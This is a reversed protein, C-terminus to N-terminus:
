KYNFYCLVKDQLTQIDSPDGFKVGINSAQENSKFVDPTTQEKKFLNQEMNMIDQNLIGDNVELGMLDVEMNQNTQTVGKAGSQMNDGTLDFLDNQPSQKFNSTINQTKKQQSSNMAFDFDDFVQNSQRIANSQNPQNALSSRVNSADDPMESFTIINKNEQSHQLLNNKHVQRMLSEKPIHNSAEPDRFSDFQNQPIQNTPQPSPSDFITDFDFDKLKNSKEPKATM